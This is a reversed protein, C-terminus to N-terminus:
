QPASAVELLERECVCGIRDTQLMIQAWERSGPSGAVAAIVPRLCNEIEDRMLGEDSCEMQYSGKKMLTLAINRADDIANKQILQVLGRRIAEYARHDYEFNYNLRLEDVKTAIDIAIEIDHVLLAIPKDLGILEELMWECPKSEQALRLTAEILDVKKIKKLRAQLLEARQKAFQKAAQELQRWRELQEKSPPRYKESRSM